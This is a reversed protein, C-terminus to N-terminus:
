LIPEYWMGYGFVLLLYDKIIARAYQCKSIRMKTNTENGM